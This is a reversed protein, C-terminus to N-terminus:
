SVEKRKETEMKLTSTWTLTRRQQKLESIIEQKKAFCMHDDFAMDLNPM